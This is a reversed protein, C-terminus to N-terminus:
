TENLVVLMTTVSKPLRRDKEEEEGADSAVVLWVGAAVAVVVCAMSPAALRSHRTVAIESSAKNRANSGVVRYARVWEIGTAAM